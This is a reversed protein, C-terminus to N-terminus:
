KVGLLIWYVLLKDVSDISEQDEATHEGDNTRSNLGKEFNRRSQKKPANVAAAGQTSEGDIAAFDDM